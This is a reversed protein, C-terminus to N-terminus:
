VIKDLEPIDQQVNPFEQFEKFLMPAFNSLPQYLLSNEKVEPSLVEVQEEISNLLVLVVSVIFAAKIIGFATGLIRNLFGLAVAKLIKDIFRALLHVGIVIIIFTVAFSIIPLYEGKIEFLQILYQSTLNSFKIGGFIGLLLAALSAVTSILGKNFGKYASWLVPILIIIDLYNM